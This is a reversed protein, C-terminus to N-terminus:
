VFVNGIIGQAFDLDTTAQPWGHQQRLLATSPQQDRDTATYTVVRGRSGTYNAFVICDMWYPYLEQAYNYPHAHLYTCFTPKIQKHPLLQM